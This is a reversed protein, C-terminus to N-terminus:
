KGISAPRTTQPLTGPLAPLSCSHGPSQAIPRSMMEQSSLSYRFTLANLCRLCPAELFCPSYCVMKQFLPLTSQLPVVNDILHQVWPSTSPWRYRMSGKSVFHLYHEWVKSSPIRVLIRVLHFISMMLPRICPVLHLRRPGALYFM